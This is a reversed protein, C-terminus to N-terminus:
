QLGRLHHNPILHSADFEALAEAKAPKAVVCSARFVNARRTSTYDPSKGAM